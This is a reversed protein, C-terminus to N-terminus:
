CKNPSASVRSFTRCTQGEARAILRGAVIELITDYRYYLSKQPLLYGARLISLGRVWFRVLVEPDISTADSGFMNRVDNAALLLANEFPRIVFAIKEVEKPDYLGEEWLGLRTQIIQEFDNMRPRARTNDM